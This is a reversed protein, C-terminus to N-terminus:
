NQFETSRNVIQVSDSMLGVIREHVNNEIDQKIRQNLADIDTKTFTLTKNPMKFNSSICM